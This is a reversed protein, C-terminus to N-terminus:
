NTQPIAASGGKQYLINDRKSGMKVGMEDM